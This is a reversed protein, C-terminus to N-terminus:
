RRLKTLLCTIPDELQFIKSFGKEPCIENEVFKLLEEM